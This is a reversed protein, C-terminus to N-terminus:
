GEHPERGQLARASMSPGDSDPLEAPGAPVEGTRAAKAAGVTRRTVEPLGEPLSAAYVEDADLRRLEAALCEAASPTSLAVERTPRGPQALTSLGEDARVLDIPGDARELRVSVIGTGPASNVRSVPVELAQALWGAILDASAEDPEAVVVASTVPEHPPEDLAAALLGRWRTIRTWSLDTDGPAYHKA